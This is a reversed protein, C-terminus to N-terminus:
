GGKSLRPIPQLGQRQAENRVRLVQHHWFRPASKYDKVFFRKPIRAMVLNTFDVSEAINLDVALSAFAM